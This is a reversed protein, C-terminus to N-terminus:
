RRQASENVFRDGELPRSMSSRGEPVGTNTKFRSTTGGDEEMEGEEGSALSDSPLIPEKLLASGLCQVWTSAAVCCCRERAFHRSMELLYRSSVAAHLHGFFRLTKNQYMFPARHWGGGRVEM